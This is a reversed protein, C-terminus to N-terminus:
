KKTAGRKQGAPAARSSSGPSATGLAFSFDSDWPLNASAPAIAAYKHCDTCQSTQIYTELTTNAVTGPNGAFLSAGM